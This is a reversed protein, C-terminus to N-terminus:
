NAYIYGQNFVERDNRRKGPTWLQWHIILHCKFTSQVKVRINLLTDQLLFHWDLPTVRLLVSLQIEPKTKRNLSLVPHLGSTPLCPGPHVRFLIFRLLILKEFLKTFAPCSSFM